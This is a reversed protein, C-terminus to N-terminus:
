LGVFGMGAFRLRERMQPVAGQVGGGGAQVQGAQGARAAARQNRARLVLLLLIVLVVLVTIDSSDSDSDEDSSVVMAVLDGIHLFAFLRGIVQEFHLLTNTAFLRKVVAGWEGLITTYPPRLSLVRMWFPKLQSPVFPLAADWIEHVNLWLCAIQVPLFAEPQAHKAMLYFRKALKFDKVVGVGFEHMFGLNFMAQASREQFADYYVAASRTWDQDVGEGQLYSDAMLLLSAVNGQDASRQTLTFTVNARMGGAIVYGRHLLWAANSQGLEMGMEAAELYSLLALNYDSQFFYEHGKQLAAAEPSREALQKLLGVASKCSKVTGKGSLQMMAANYMAPVHGAQAAAVYYQFAKQINKRRVGLGKHHMIGIFFNAEAHGQGAAKLMLKYAMEQDEEVHHGYLYLCALGFQGSASEKDAALKLWSFATEYSKKAGYGNAFMHGLHAMADVDGAAAAREFYHMAQPKPLMLHCVPM